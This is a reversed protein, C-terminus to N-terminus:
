RRRPTKSAESRNRGKDKARYLAEDARRLWDTVPEGPAREAV